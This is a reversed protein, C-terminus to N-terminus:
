NSCHTKGREEVGDKLILGTFVVRWQLICIVKGVCALINVHLGFDPVTAFSSASLFDSCSM